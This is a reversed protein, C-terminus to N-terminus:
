GYRPSVSRSWGMKGASFARPIAVLALAGLLIFSSLNLNTVAGTTATALFYSAAAGSLVALLAWSGRRPTASLELILGAIFFGPPILLTPLAALAGASWSDDLIPGTATSWGEYLQWVFGAALFVIVVVRVIFQRDYRTMSPFRRNWARSGRWARVTLLVALVVYVPVPLWPNGTFWPLWSLPPWTQETLVFRTEGDVPKVQIVRAGELLVDVQLGTVERAGIRYRVGPWQRDVDVARTADWRYQITYGAPQDAADGWPVSSEIRADRGELVAAVGPESRAAALAAELGAPAAAEDGEPLDAGSGAGSSLAPAAPGLAALSLCLLSFGLAFWSKFRRMAPGLRASRSRRGASVSYEGWRMWEAGPHRAFVAYHCPRGPLLPGDRFSGTVGQYVVEQGQAPGEDASAAAREGSRLIRVELLTRGPYDWALTFMDDRDSAVVRRRRVDTIVEDAHSM